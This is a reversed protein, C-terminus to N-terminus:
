GGALELPAALTRNQNRFYLKVEVRPSAGVGAKSATLVLAHRDHREFRFHGAADSRTEAIPALSVITRENLVVEADAVPQGAADVVTGQLIGDDHAAVYLNWGLVVLALTGFTLTVRNLLWGRWGDM